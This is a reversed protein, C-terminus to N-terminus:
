EDTPNLLEAFALVTSRLLNTNSGTAPLCMKIFNKDM